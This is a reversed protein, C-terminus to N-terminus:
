PEPDFGYAIGYSKIRVRTLTRLLLDALCTHGTRVDLASTKEERILWPGVKWNHLAAGLGSTRLTEAAAGALVAEATRVGWGGLLCGLESDSASSLYFIDLCFLRLLATSPWTKPNNKWPSSESLDCWLAPCFEAPCRSVRMMLIWNMLPLSELGKITFHLWLSWNPKLVIFNM